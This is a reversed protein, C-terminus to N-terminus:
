KKQNKAGARIMAAAVLDDPSPYMKYGPPLEFLKPDPRAFGVQGFHIISVEGNERTEIQLPFNQLDTANWTTSELLTMGRQNKVVSRNKVCKHGDITERGLATRVLKVGAPSADEDTLPMTVYGQVGPFLMYTVKRDLRVVSSVRDIGLKKNMDIASAAIGPGKMQGRDVDIRLKGDLATFDMPLRRIEVRNSLVQINARASFTPSEGFLKVFASNQGAGPMQASACLTSFCFAGALFMARLITKNM